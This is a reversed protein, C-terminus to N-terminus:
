PKGINESLSSRSGTGGCNWVAEKIEQLSFPQDHFSSDLPALRHFLPSCFTPTVQNQEDFKSRFSLYITDKIIHPNTIWSGDISLGSIRAKKQRDNILEHYFKSNEDGERLWKVTSRIYFAM